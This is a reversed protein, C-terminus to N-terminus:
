VWKKLPRRSPQNWSGSRRIFGSSRRRILTRPCEIHWLCVKPGVVEDDTGADKVPKIGSSGPRWAAASDVM